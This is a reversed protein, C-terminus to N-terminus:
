FTWKNKEQGENDRTKTTSTRKKQQAPNPENIAAVAWKVARRNCCWSGTSCSVAATPSPLLSFLFSYSPQLCFLFLCFWLLHRARKLFRAAEGFTKMKKEDRGARFLWRGGPSIELHNRRPFLRHLYLFLSIKPIKPFEPHSQLFFVTMRRYLFVIDWNDGNSVFIPRYQSVKLFEFLKVDNQNM